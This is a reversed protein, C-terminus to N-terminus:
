SVKPRHWIDGDSAASGPDATGIWVAWQAASPRPPYGPGTQLVRAGVIAAVPQLADARAAAPEVDEPTITVNGNVPAIDNVTQVGAEVEINDIAENLQEIDEDLDVAVLLTRDGGEPSGVWVRTVDVPGFFNRLTGTETTVLENIAVGDHNLLDLIRSGNTRSTWVWLRANAGLRVFGQNDISATWDGSENGFLHRRPELAM